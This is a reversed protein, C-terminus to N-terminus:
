IQEDALKLAKEIFKKHSIDGNLSERVLEEQEKSVILGEMRLSSKAYEMAKTFDKKAM